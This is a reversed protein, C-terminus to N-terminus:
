RHSSILRVPLRNTDDVPHKTSTVFSDWDLVDDIHRNRSLYNFELQTIYTNGRISLARCPWSEGLVDLYMWTCGLVGTSLYM